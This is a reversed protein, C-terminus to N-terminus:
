SAMKVQEKVLVFSSEFVYLKQVCPVFVFVFEKRLASLPDSFSACGLLVLPGNKYIKYVYGCIFVLEMFCNKGM